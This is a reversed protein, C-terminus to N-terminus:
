EGIKSFLVVSIALLAVYAQSILSFLSLLFEAPFYCFVLDDYFVMMDYFFLILFIKQDIVNFLPRVM